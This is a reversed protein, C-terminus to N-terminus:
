IINTKFVNSKKMELARVITIVGQSDYANM